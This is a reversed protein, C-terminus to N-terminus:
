KLVSSPTPTLRLVKIKERDMLERVKPGIEDKWEPDEYVAAYLREREAESEFRRIWVFVSDDTEGSFSGPVVMGRAIQFPLIVEDFLKVWAAMKGPRIVYQRLEYFPM